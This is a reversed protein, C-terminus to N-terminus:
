YLPPHSAVKYLPVLSSGFDCGLLSPTPTKIFVQMRMRGESRRKTGKSFGNVLQLTLFLRPYMGFLKANQSVSFLLSPSFNSSLSWHSCSGWVRNQTDQAILGIIAIKSGLWNLNPNFLHIFLELVWAHCKPVKAISEWVEKRITNVAIRWM